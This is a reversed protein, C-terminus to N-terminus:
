ENVSNEIAKLFATLDENEEQIDPEKKIIETYLELLSCFRRDSIEELDVSQIYEELKQVLGRM